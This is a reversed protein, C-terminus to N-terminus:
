RIKEMDYERRYKQFEGVPLQTRIGLWDLLPENSYSLVVMLSKDQHVNADKYGAMGLAISELAASYESSHEVVVNVICNNEWMKEFFHIPKETKFSIGIPPAISRTEGSQIIAKNITFKHMLNNTAFAIIMKEIIPAKQFNLPPAIGRWSFQSPNLLPSEALKILTSLAEPRTEQSNILQQAHQWLLREINLAFTDLTNRTLESFIMKDRGPSLEVSNRPLNLVIEFGSKHFKQDLEGFAESYAFATDPVLIYAKGDIIVKVTRNVYPLTVFESGVWGAIVGGYELPTFSTLDLEIQM